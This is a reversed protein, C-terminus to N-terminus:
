MTGSVFRFFEMYKGDVEPHFQIGLISDGCEVGEITGDPAYAAVTLRPSPATIRYHHLSAGMLSDRGMMARLRTGPLLSVPHKTEDAHDRVMPVDWHHEVPETFMYKEKKMIEYLGLLDGTWGRRAAEDAVIFYSHILQMGLCIGLVTKGARVAYDMAQFHYPLIRRGGCFLFADCTELPRPLIYGDDALLGVPVGGAQAVRKAYNNVFFYQDKYYDDTEFLRASPVIGVINPM